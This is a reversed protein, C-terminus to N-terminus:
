RLCAGTAVARNSDLADAVADAVAVPSLAYGISSDRQSESFTVGGVTGDSLLVPGGSDGPGVDARMEIVNRAVIADGYIDRGIADIVRGVVAPILRQRGGGTFGLAAASDGRGPVSLALTLPDFALGEVTLVAADLAPDFHVVSAEYRDFSGDRSIWVRDAGAVVHANTVIHDPEVAFGTGTLFSGCATAEVRVTSARAATVFRGAEEVSPGGAPVDIPPPAGVFVDPLGAAEIIRGLEAALAVPSPARTDIARLIVSQRAEAALAPAPLVGVLGGILWVIFVGRVFGFVAGAGMDVGGLLGNGLRRRIAGGIASGVGQAVLVIGAVLGIVIATRLWTEAEALLGAVHPALLVMAALGALFGGLAFTQIVFGSRWGFYVALLIVLVAAVDVLNITM